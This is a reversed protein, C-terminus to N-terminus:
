GELQESLIQIMWAGGAWVVEMQDGFIMMMMTMMKDARNWFMDLVKGKEDSNNSGDQNLGDNKERVNNWSVGAYKWENVSPGKEVSSGTHDQLLTFWIVGKM